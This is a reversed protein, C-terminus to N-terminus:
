RKCSTGYDREREKVEGGCDQCVCPACRLMCFGRCGAREREMAWERWQGSEGNGVREM